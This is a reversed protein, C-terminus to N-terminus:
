SCNVQQKRTEMLTDYFPKERELEAYGKYGQLLAAEDAL